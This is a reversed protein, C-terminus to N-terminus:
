KLGEKEFNWKPDFKIIERFVINQKQDYTLSPKVKKSIANQLEMLAQENHGLDFKFKDKIYNNFFFLHTAIDPHGDGMNGNFDTNLQNPFNDLNPLNEFYMDHFERHLSELAPVGGSEVDLFPLMNFQYGINFMKNASIISTANKIVDNNWSWYKRIFRNDYFHSNFVNGYAEWQNLYRDERTWSSWQVLILDRDTFKNKLDCEVMKYFIGVNGIGPNGWNYVPPADSAYRIIDAWTPWVYRTWSCGFTFIRDYKM